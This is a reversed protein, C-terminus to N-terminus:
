IQQWTIKELPSLFSNSVAMTFSDDTDTNSSSFNKQIHVSKFTGKDLSKIFTYHNFTHTTESLMLHCLARICSTFDKIGFLKVM